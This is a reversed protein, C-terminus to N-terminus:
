LSIWCILEASKLKQRITSCFSLWPAGTLVIVHGMNINSKRVTVTLSALCSINVQSIINVKKQREPEDYMSGQLLSYQDELVLFQM